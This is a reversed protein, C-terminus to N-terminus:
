FSYHRAKVAAGSKGPAGQWRQPRRAYDGQRLPGVRIQDLGGHLFAVVRGGDFGSGLGGPLGGINIADAFM